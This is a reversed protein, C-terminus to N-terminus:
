VAGRHGSDQTTINFWAKSINPLPLLLLYYAFSSFPEETNSRSRKYKRMYMQEQFDM